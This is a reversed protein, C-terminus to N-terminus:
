SRGRSTRWTRDQTKHNEFPGGGVKGLKVRVCVECCISM